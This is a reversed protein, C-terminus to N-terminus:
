PDHIFVHQLPDRLRTILQQPHLPLKVPAEPGVLVSGQHMRPSFM